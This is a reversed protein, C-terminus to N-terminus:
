AHMCALKGISLFSCVNEYIIAVVFHLVPFLSFFIIALSALGSRFDLITVSDRFLFIIIYLPHGPYEM